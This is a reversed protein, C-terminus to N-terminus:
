TPARWFKRASKAPSCVWPALTKRVFSRRNRYAPVSLCLCHNREACSAWPNKLVYSNKRSRSQAAERSRRQTARNERSRNGCGFRGLRGAFIRMGFDARFINERRGYREREAAPIKDAPCSQFPKGYVGPLDAVAGRSHRNKGLRVNKPFARESQEVFRECLGCIVFAFDYGEEAPFHLCVRM